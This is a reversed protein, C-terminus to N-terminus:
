TNINIKNKLENNYKVINLKKNNRIFSFIKRFIYVSNIKKLINPSNGM